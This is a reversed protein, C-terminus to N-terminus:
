RDIKWRIIGAALLLIYGAMFILNKAYGSHNSARLGCDPCKCIVTSKRIFEIIRPRPYHPLQDECLLNSYFWSFIM